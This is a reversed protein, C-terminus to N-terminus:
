TISNLYEILKDSIQGKKLDLWSVGLHENVGEPQLFYFNGDLKLVKDALLRRLVAHGTPNRLVRENEIKGKFKALKGRGHARFLLLIRRLRLHKEKLQPDSPLQEKKKAHQIVPYTLGSNDSVAFTLPVDNTVIRSLTSEVKEGQLLVHQNQPGLSSRRLILATSQLIIRSASFVEVPATFEIEQAGSFLIDCPLSVYTGSLRHGLNVPKPVDLNSHFAFSRPKDREKGLLIEVEIEVTDDAPTGSLMDDADPGDVCLEVYANTSRFELASGLLVHLCNIPVYGDPSITSLLYILHYSYKHSAVYQLVLQVGSPDGSAILTALAVSEFVANRFQRGRIFPHEPLWSLLQEEYKDNVSQESIVELTLSKQMCYSILRMYQEDAEYVRAIIGEKDREPMDAVIPKVINPVVKVEKERRLIYQAIRNLLKIEVDNKDSSQMENRLRHYNTEESLLTVIADLVPPYGIFSLFDENAADGFAAGLMALISDRVKEYEKAHQSELGGTFADIYERASDAGFPLITILGTSLGKETLYVWCDELTETRGLLVFSTNAPCKCLHVIDDLFAEFARETTKSRGEDIGDIIVGYSGEGISKFISSLDEVQFTNTLLGTLTNDAVPKHKGLDLLPLGTQHSLVQALTSKGTAGVASILIVAPKETNFVVKEFLPEIYPEERREAVNFSESTTQIEFTKKQATVISKLNYYKM